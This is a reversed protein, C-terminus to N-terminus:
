INGNWFDLIRGNGHRFYDEAGGLYGISYTDFGRALPTYKYSSEGLHWKGVM